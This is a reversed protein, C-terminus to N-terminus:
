APSVCDAGCLAGWHGAAEVVRGDAEPHEAYLFEDGSEVGQGETM